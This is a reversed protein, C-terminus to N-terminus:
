WNKLPNRQKKAVESISSFEQLDMTLGSNLHFNNNNETLPNVEPSFILNTKGILIITSTLVSPNRM